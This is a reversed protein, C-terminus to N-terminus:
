RECGVGDGNRDLDFPDPPLVRIPGEVYNPGNGSGGACDYDGIGDHLCADPYAPDCNRAPAATTPTARRTTPTAKRTTTTPRRTTTTARPTTTTPAATTPPATTTTPAQTTTPAATTTTPTASESGGGGCGALLCALVGGVIMTSTRTRMDGGEFRGASGIAYGGRSGALGNASSLVRSLEGGRREAVHSALFDAAM